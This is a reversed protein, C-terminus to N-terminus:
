RPLAVGDDQGRELRPERRHAPRDRDRGPRVPRGGDVVKAQGGRHEGLGHHDVVIPMAALVEDQEPDCRAPRGHPEMPTDEVCIEHDRRAADARVVEGAEARAHLRDKRPEALRGRDPDIVRELHRSGKRKIHSSKFSCCYAQM